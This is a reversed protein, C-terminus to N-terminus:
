QKQEPMPTKASTLPPLQLIHQYQGSIKAQTLQQNFLTKLRASNPLNKPFLLFNEGRLLPTPHHTIQQALEDPLHQLIHYGVEIEEAFTDIRGAVLRRFNQETTNVRSIKLLGTAVAQDFEAGYSYGFGGGLELKKLDSVTQWVLPQRKLHFLVLQTELLVGSFLYDNLRNNNQMWIATADYRGAATDYYARAWPLFHFQVQYGAQGMMESILLAVTGHHPLHEGLYPPWEGTSIHLV